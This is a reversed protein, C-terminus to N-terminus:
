LQPRMVYFDYDSSLPLTDCDPDCLTLTLTSWLQPRMVSFDCDSMLPLTNAM